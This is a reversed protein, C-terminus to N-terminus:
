PSIFTVSVNLLLASRTNKCLCKPAHRMQNHQRADQRETLWYSYRKLKPIHISLHNFRQGDKLDWIVIKIPNKSLFVCYSPQRSPCFFVTLYRQFLRKCNALRAGNRGETLRERSRSERWILEDKRNLFCCEINLEFCIWKLKEIQHKCRFHCKPYNIAAFAEETLWGNGIWGCVLRSIVTQRQHIPTCEALLKGKRPIVM